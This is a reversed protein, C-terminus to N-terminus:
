KFIIVYYLPSSMRTFTLCPLLILTFSLKPQFWANIRAFVTGEAPHVFVIKLCKVAPKLMRWSWWVLIGNPSYTTCFLEIKQSKNLPSLCLDSVHICDCFRIDANKQLDM